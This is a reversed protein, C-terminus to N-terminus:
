CLILFEQNLKLLKAVGESSGLKVILIRLLMLSTLVVPCHNQLQGKSAKLPHRPIKDMTSSDKM